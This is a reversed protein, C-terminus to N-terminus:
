GEGSVADFRTGSHEPTAECFWNPLYISSDFNDTLGLELDHRFDIRAFGPDARTQHGFTVWQEYEGNGKGEPYTDYTFTFPRPDAWASSCLLLAFVVLLKTSPM